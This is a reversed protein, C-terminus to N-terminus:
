SYFAVVAQGAQAASRLSELLSQRDREIGANKPFTLDMGGLREVESAVEAASLFSVVPFDASEPMLVPLRATALSSDLKLAKLRGKGEIVSLRSGLVRCLLELGFGYSCEPRTHEGSVLEAAAQEDPLSEDEWGALLEEETNCCLVGAIRTGALAQQLARMFSGAESWRGSKRGREHYWYLNTGAWRPERVQAQLEELTVAQGNLLLQSDCTIKIRPGNEPKVVASTEGVAARAREVLALDKSGVAGRLVDLDIAYLTTAYGM